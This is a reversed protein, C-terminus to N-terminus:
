RHRSMGGAASLLLQLAARHDVSCSRLIRAVEGPSQNDCADAISGLLVASLGRPESTAADSEWRTITAESVGLFRALVARSVGLRGRLKGVNVSKDSRENRGSSSVYRLADHLSM